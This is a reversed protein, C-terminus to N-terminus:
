LDKGYETDLVNSEAAAVGVRAQAERLREGLGLGDAAPENFAYEKPIEMECYHFDQGTERYWKEAVEYAEAMTPTDVMVSGVVEYGSGIFEVKRLM